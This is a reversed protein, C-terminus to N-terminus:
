IYDDHYDGYVYDGNVNDDTFSNEECDSENGYYIEPEKYDELEPKYLREDGFLEIREQIDRERQKFIEDIEKKHRDIREKELRETIGTSPGYEKRIRRDEDFYMVVWGPDIDDYIEKRTPESCQIAGLFDINQKKNKNKNNKIKHSILLPISSLEPFLEDNNINITNEKKENIKENSIFTNENNKPNSLSTIQMNTPNTFPNSYTSNVTHTINRNQNQCCETEDNNKNNNNYNINKSSKHKTKSKKSPNLFLNTKGKQKNKELKDSM